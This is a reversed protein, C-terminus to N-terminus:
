QPEGLFPFVDLTSDVDNADVNDSIAISGGSVILTLTLDVTDQDLTRGGCLSPEAGLVIGAEVALYGGECDPIDVRTILRDDAIVSGLFAPDGTLLNGTVGDLSDTFELSAAITETYDAVWTSPDDNFNYEDRLSAPILAANVAARGMRDVQGGRLPLQPTLGQINALRAIPEDFAPLGSSPETPAFSARGTGGDTFTLTLDGAPEAAIMGTAFTPVFDGGSFRSVPVTVSTGPESDLAVNGALWLPLGDLFGYFTAFIQTPNTPDLPSELVELQFGQGGEPAGQDDLIIWPGSLSGNIGATEALRDTAAWFLTLNADPSGDTIDSIPIGLVIALTNFGAFTDVGPDTFAAMGTTLTEALADGDLYFPDERLGAFARLGDGELVTEIPGSVNSGNGDTCTLRIGGEFTCAYVFSGGAGNDIYFRYSVADSFRTATTARPHVTAAVIFESSDNPNVFAFIDNIDASPDALAAPAERHDASWACCCISLLVFPLVTKTIRTSHFM